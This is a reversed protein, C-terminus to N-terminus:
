DIASPVAARVQSARWAPVAATVNAVLLILLAVGLVLLPAITPRPVVGLQRAFQIWLWRGVAIGLPLGVILSAAITSTAQWSVTAALQRRTFGLCKLLTLERRGRTVSAGLALGLSLMAGIALAAALVPPAAGIASSNVIEAPRQVPFADIGGFDAASALSRKLDAAVGKPANGPNLRVFLANPGFEGTRTNTLDKDFGPVLPPAVVAGVGLSTHEGHVIGVTPLIALGVVTVRHKVRGDAITVVDGVHADLREATAPGLLAERENDPGRGEVIPPLVDSGPAMGILPVDLEKVSATGFYAGSWSRVRRDRDMIQKTRAPALNGYGLADVATVDWTWGYLNPREVLTRLSTGFIIAAVLAGIAVAASPIISRVPVATSADGPELSFRLGVVAPPQAGAAALAAVLRSPRNPVRQRAALRHPLEAWVVLAAVLLLVFAVVLAGGVLVTLDLDIGPSVEVRRVPGLPMLPSLAVGVVLALTTGALVVLISPTLMVAALASPGAGMSRIVNLDRRDLRVLRGLAQATLFLGALGAIAGFLAVAIALPRVATVGHLEDISTERYVSTGKPVLREYRAKVAAIDSEGHRLIVGQVSYLAYSAVGKSFAPTLLMRTTRDGEDQLVEDPFLGIGVIRVSAHAKPRPPHTRFSESSSQELSFTGLELRQGVRYGFQRAANENVAVEGARAPNPTRGKTAVFRDQEFFRGNFTGVAEFDQGFDPAGHVFVNTQFSVYSTSGIVEPYRRVEAEVSGDDLAGSTMALTSAHGRRLLRPYASQTRRAGALSAFCVGVSIGLAGRDRRLEAM